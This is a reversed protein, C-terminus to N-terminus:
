EEIRKIMWNELRSVFIVGRPCSLRYVDYLDNWWVGDIELEIEAYITTIIELVNGPAIDSQKSATLLKTTAVYGQKSFVDYEGEAEQEVEEKNESQYTFEMDWEDDYWDYYYLTTEKVYNNQIGWELMQNQQEETLAHYDLFQGQKKSLEFLDGGLRAIKRWENPHLSVSLGSGEYSSTGKHEPNMTGVHFVSDKIVIPYTM